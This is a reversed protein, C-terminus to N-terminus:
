MAACGSQGFPEWDMSMKRHSPPDPPSNVPLGGPVLLHVFEILDLGDLLGDQNIDGRSLAPVGYVNDYLEPDLVAMVFPEIDNVDVLGNVDMDGLVTVPSLDGEDVRGDYNVDYLIASRAFYHIQISGNVGDDDIEPHGDFALVYQLLMTEDLENVLGDGNFDGATVNPWIDSWVFRSNGQQQEYASGVLCTVRWLSPDLYEPVINSAWGAILQYEPRTQDWPTANIASWRLDVLAEMISNQNGPCGDNPQVQTGGGQILASAANTLPYVLSVTTRNTSEFHEFQLQVIPMYRGPLSQCQFAHPEFGHARHFFQGQLLWREGAEFITPNGGVREVIVNIEDIEEGRFVLHFEEGSRDCLPPTQVNNDFALRDIAVRNIFRSEQPVGGFRAVSGLYRGQPNALEGGTNENADMDFEIYGFVPHPGYQYPMWMPLTDSENVPGPPNILGVFTIDFRMFGGNDSWEGAFLDVQPSIPAFGGLRMEVIDPLRHTKPDFPGINGLDTRRMVVDGIPDFLFVTDVARVPSAFTVASATLIFYM